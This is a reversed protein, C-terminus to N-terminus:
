TQRKLNSLFFTLPGPTRFPSGSFHYIRGSQGPSYLGPHGGFGHWIRVAPGLAPVLRRLRHFKPPAQWNQDADKHDEGHIGESRHTYASLPDDEVGTFFELGVATPLFVAAQFKAEVAQHDTHRFAIHGLHYARLRRRLGLSWSCSRRYRHSRASQEPNSSYTHLSSSQPSMCAPTSRLAASSGSCRAPHSLFPM